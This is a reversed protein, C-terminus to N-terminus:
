VFNLALSVILFLALLGVTLQSLVKEAGRKSTQFGATSSGGIAEGLGSAKEQVLIAIVLLISLVIQIILFITQM